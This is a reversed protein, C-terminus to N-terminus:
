YLTYIEGRVESDDPPQASRQLGLFPLLAIAWTSRSQRAWALYARAWGQAREAAPAAFTATYADTSLSRKRRWMSPPSPRNIELDSGVIGAATVIAFCAGQAVARVVRAVLGIARVCAKFLVPGVVGQHARLALIAAGLALGAFVAAVLPIGLVAIVAGLVAHAGAVVLYFARCWFKTPDLPLV